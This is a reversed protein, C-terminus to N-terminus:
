SSQRQVEGRLSRAKVRYAERSVAIIKSPQTQSVSNRLQEISVALLAVTSSEFLAQMSLDINLSKRLRSIVRTALLSQGGLQFFNDHISIEPVRLVDRWVNAVEREL